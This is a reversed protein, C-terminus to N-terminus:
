GGFIPQGLSNPFLDDIFFHLQAIFGVHHGSARNVPIVAEGSLQIYQGAWILGPNATGTTMGGGRDLPTGLALEVIPILRDFPKSLGINRVQSQFYPISYELALGFKLSDPHPEFGGSGDPTRGVQPIAIGLTGTVAFGRLWSDRDALDGLGKGFFFTPAFTSFREAGVRAAGTGGIDIDIGVSFITERMPDVPLQYKLGLALNDFGGMSPGGPPSVHLYTEGLEIGLNPTIRKALDTSWATTRTGDDDHSWAVTPLSFEEAVFPDDSALTAPFFRPGAFGHASAHSAVCAALVTCAGVRWPICSM